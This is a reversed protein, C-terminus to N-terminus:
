NWSSNMVNEIRVENRLEENECQLNRIRQEYHRIDFYSSFLFEILVWIIGNPHKNSQKPQNHM